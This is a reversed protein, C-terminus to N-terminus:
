SRPMHQYLHELGYEHRMLPKIDDLSVNMKVGPNLNNYPDFILKVKQFLGYIEDGYLLKLYPARIRGDNHEGSTSGGLSIVLRYYEDIIKFAKQRDGVQSLDLYPQL